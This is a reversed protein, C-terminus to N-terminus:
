GPNPDELPRHSHAVHRNTLVRGGGLLVGAGAGRRGDQVIAVAPRIRTYLEDLADGIEASLNM